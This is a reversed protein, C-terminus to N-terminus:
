FALMAALSFPTRHGKIVGYPFDGRGQTRDLAVVLRHRDATMAKPMVQDFGLIQQALKETQGASAFDVAPSSVARRPGVFVAPHQRTRDVFPEFRHEIWGAYV